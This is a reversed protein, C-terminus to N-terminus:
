DRKIREILLRKSHCILKVYKKNAHANLKVGDLTRLDFNGVSRRGFVFCEKNQYLVKDFMRFGFIEFPAQNLKRRGGKIIKAKHIKRNHRRVQKMYFYFNLPLALPNGSICRADTIHSKQLGANIRKYKTFYGFTMKVNPYKWKIRRYLEWKMVGVNSADRFSISRNKKIKFMGQHYQKHCTKCLTILNGPSNGGTKRSEIHHVNLVKDKSKGKCHQCTHNDRCLVYERVNWFGFQEGKQYLESNTDPNKLAQIDFQAVEITIVSVPLFACTCEIARLHTQIRNEMSPSFWDKKRKRNDFRMKRYRTKRGRRSKRAERRTSILNVIDTRLQVEAAYLESRETTASMGIHASGVDVGLSIQQTIDTTEYNLRITFPERQVVNALGHKLIRRVKGYRTTPMLPKGEINQVYVM